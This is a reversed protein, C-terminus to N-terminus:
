VLICTTAACSVAELLQYYSVIALFLDGVPCQLGGKPAQHAQCSVEAVVPLCNVLARMVAGLIRPAVPQLQHLWRKSLPHCLDSRVAEVWVVGVSFDFCVVFMIARCVLVVPSWLPGTSLTTHDCLVWRGCGGMVAM